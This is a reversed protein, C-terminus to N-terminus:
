TAKDVRNASSRSNLEAQAEEKHQKWYRRGKSGKCSLETVHCTHIHRRLRDLPMAKLDFKQYSRGRTGRPM